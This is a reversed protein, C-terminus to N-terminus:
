RIGLLRRAARRVELSTQVAERAEELTPGAGPYRAGAAHATLADIRDRDISTKLGVAECLLQLSRLDHTKPFPQHAKVLLAKLYKEACQQAHFAAMQPMPKRRRLASRAMALDDDGYSEWASPDAPDNI